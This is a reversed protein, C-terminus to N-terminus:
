HKTSLQCQLSLCFDTRINDPEPVRFTEQVVRRLLVPCGSLAQDDLEEKLKQPIQRIFIDAHPQM